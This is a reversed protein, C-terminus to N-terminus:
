RYWIKSIITFLDSTKIIQLISRDISTDLGDTPNAEQLVNKPIKTIAEHINQFIYCIHSLLQNIILQKSKHQHNQGNHLQLRNM